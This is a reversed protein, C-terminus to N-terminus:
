IEDQEGKMHKDLIDLAAVIGFHFGREYETCFDVDELHELDARIQDLMNRYYHQIEATMVHDKIM